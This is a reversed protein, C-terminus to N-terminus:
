EVKQKLLPNKKLPKASWTEFTREGMQEGYIDTPIDGGESAQLARVIEEVTNKEFYPLFLHVDNLSEDVQIRMQMPTRVMRGLLQAIYTADKARRFSMMTEARPCDWGTSLSEKFFVLRIKRNDNIGSPEYYPVELGNIDISEKEGFAHM